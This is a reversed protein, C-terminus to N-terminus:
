FWQTRGLNLMCYVDARNTTIRSNDAHVAAVGTTSLACAGVATRTAVTGIAAGVGSAVSVGIREVVSGDQGLEGSGFDISM